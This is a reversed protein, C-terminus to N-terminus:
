QQAPGSARVGQTPRHLILARKETYNFPSLGPGDKTHCVMCTAKTVPKLGMLRSLVKDKMINAPAYFQGFGHCAECQVGSLDARESQPATTHCGRCGRNRQQVSSLKALAMAHPTKKWQVYEQVHCSGCTEAGLPESAM